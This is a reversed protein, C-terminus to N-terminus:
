RGDPVQVGPPWRHQRRRVDEAQAPAEPVRQQQQRRPLAHRRGEQTRRAADGRGNEGPSGGLRRLLRRRVRFGAVHRPGHPHLLQQLGRHVRAALRRVGAAPRPGRCRNGDQQVDREPHAGGVRAAPDERVAGRGGRRREVRRRRRVLVHRRALGPGGRVVGDSRRRAGDPDAHRIDEACDEPWRGPVGRRQVRDHSFRPGSKHPYRPFGRPLSPPHSPEFGVWVREGGDGGEGM